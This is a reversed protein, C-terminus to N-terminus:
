TILTSNIFGRIDSDIDVYEDIIANNFRKGRAEYENSVFVVEGGTKENYIKNECVILDLSSNGIIKKISNWVEAMKRKRNNEYAYVIKEGNFLAQLIIIIKNKEM